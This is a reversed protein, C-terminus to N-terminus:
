QATKRKTTISIVGNAALPDSYRKAAMPAKIVDVTAITTPDLTKLVSVDAKVGDILVLGDFKKEPTNAATKNIDLLTHRAHTASLIHVQAPKGESSKVFEISAVGEALLAKAVAATVVVNDLTYVPEPEGTKLLFARRAGREASAADMQTVDAATPVATECAVLLSAVALASIVVARTRAYKPFDPKMAILRQELHSSDDALAAISVRFGSRHEALDILLDGYKRPAVGASLVRADCDLEVALRLRSLMWWAAPNWPLIAAVACGLALLMPDRARMHETEHAVVLRQEDETRVLLWRPVVIDPRVVGIVAPGIDPAIRVDVGCLTAVPWQRRERKFRLYVVIMLLVLSATAILWLAILYNGASEPLRSQLFAISRRIPELLIGREIDAVRQAVTTWSLGGASASTIQTQRGGALNLTPTISASGRFPAFGILALMVLMAATWVLRAAIGARRALWEAAVAGIAVLASVVIGYLMLAAIM